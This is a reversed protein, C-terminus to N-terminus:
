IGRAAAWTSCPEDPNVGMADFGTAFGQRLSTLCEWGDWKDAIADFFAARPNGNM